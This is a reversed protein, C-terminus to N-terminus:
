VFTGKELPESFKLKKDASNVAIRYVISQNEANLIVLHTKIEVASEWEFTLFSVNSVQGHIPSIQKFKSDHYIISSKIDSQEFQLTKFENNNFFRIGTVMVIAIVSAAALYFFTKRTKNSQQQKMKIKNLQQNIMEYQQSRRWESAIKTRFEYQQHFQPDSKLKQQFLEEQEKDLTGDLHGEILDFHLDQHNSM